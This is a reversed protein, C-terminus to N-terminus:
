VLLQELELCYHLFYNNFYNIKTFNKVSFDIDGNLACLKRNISMVFFKTVETTKSEESCSSIM